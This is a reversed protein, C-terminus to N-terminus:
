EEDEGHHVHNHALVYMEDFQKASALALETTYCHPHFQVVNRHGYNDVFDGEIQEPDEEKLIRRLRM